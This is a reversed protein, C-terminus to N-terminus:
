SAGGLMGSAHGLAGILRVGLLLAFATWLLTPVVGRGDGDRTVRHALSLVGGAGVLAAVTLALPLASPTRMTASFFAAPAALGLLVASTAALSRTAAAALATVTVRGGGLSSALYLPPAALVAGGAFLAAASWAGHFMASPGYGTGAAAGFAAAGLAGQALDRGITTARPAVALTQTTTTM